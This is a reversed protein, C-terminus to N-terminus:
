QRSTRSRPPSCRCSTATAAAAKEGASCGAARVACTDGGGLSVFTVDKLDGSPATPVSRSDTTGDGVNSGENEGWCWLRRDYTTACSNLQGAWAWAVSSTSVGTDCGAAAALLTLAIFIRSRGPM